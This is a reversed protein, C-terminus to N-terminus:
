AAPSSQGVTQWDSSENQAEDVEHWSTDQRRNVNAAIQCLGDLKFLTSVSRCNSNSGSQAEKGPQSLTSAALTPLTFATMTM